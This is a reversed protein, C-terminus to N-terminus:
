TRTALCTAAMSAHQVHRQGGFELTRTPLTINLAGAIERFAYFLARCVCPKLTPSHLWGGNPM